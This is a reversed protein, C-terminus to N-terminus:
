SIDLLFYSHSTLERTGLEDTVPRVLHNVEELGLVIHHQYLFLRLRERVGLTWHYYNDALHASVSFTILVPAIPVGIVCSFFSSVGDRPLYFVGESPFCVYERKRELTHTPTPRPDFLFGSRPNTELTTPVTM